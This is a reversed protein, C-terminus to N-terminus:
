LIIRVFNPVEIKKGKLFEAALITLWEKSTQIDGGTAFFTKGNDSVIQYDGTIALPETEGALELKVSFTKQKSDIELKTMNKIASTIKCIVFRWFWEQIAKDRIWFAADCIGSFLSV